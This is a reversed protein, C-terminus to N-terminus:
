KARGQCMCACACLVSSLGPAHESCACLVSSPRSCVYLASSIASLRLAGYLGKFAALAENRIVLAAM